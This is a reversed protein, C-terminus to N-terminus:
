NTNTKSNVFLSLNVVEGIIILAPFNIKTTNSKKEILVDQYLNEVTSFLYAQEPLSCHSIIVAKKTKVMGHKILNLCIEQLYKFCMYFVLTLSTQSLFNWNYHPLGFKNNSSIKNYGSLFIVSQGFDRHTLPIALESAAAIAASIGPIVEISINNTALFELEEGGRGFIFPDGGKLRVLFPHSTLKELFLQHIENQSYSHKGYRKGVFIKECHPPAYELVEQNVLSDYLICTSKELIRKAKLTILEADGPGAGILYVKNM